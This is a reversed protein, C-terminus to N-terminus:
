SYLKGFKFYSDSVEEGYKQALIKEPWYCAWDYLYLRFDLKVIGVASQYIVNKKSVLKGQQKLSTDSFRQFQVPKTTIVCADMIRSNSLERDGYNKKNKVTNTNSPMGQCLIRSSQTRFIITTAGFSRSISSSHHHGIDCVILYVCRFQSCCVSNCHQTKGGM